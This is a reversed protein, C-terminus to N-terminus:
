LESSSIDGAEKEGGPEHDSGYSIIEFAEGKRGPVLYIFDQTWPDKPVKRTELYGESPYREPIPDTTPKGVLADLGQEQTPLRGQESRYMQVATQLQKIQMKTAAIRAEAPKHLVQVSVIGALIAIIMIVVLIEIM